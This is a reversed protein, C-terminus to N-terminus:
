SSKPTSLALIQERLNGRPEQFSLYGVFPAIPRLFLKAQCLHFVFRYTAAVVREHDQYFMMVSILREQSPRLLPPNIHM